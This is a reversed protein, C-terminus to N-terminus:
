SSASVKVRMQDRLRLDFPSQPGNRGARTGRAPSKQKFLGSVATVFRSTSATAQASADRAIPKLANTGWVVNKTLIIRLFKRKYDVRLQGKSANAESLDEM